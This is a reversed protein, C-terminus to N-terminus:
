QKEFNSVRITRVNLESDTVDKSLIMKGSSFEIHNSIIDNSGIFDIKDGSIKYIYDTKIGKYYYYCTGDDLFYFSAGETYLSSQPSEIIDGTLLNYVTTSGSTCLWQGLIKSSVGNDSSCSLLFFMCNVFLLVKKM